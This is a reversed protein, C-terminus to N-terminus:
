LNRSVQFVMLGIDSQLPAINWKLDKMQAFVSGAFKDTMEVGLKNSNQRYVEM